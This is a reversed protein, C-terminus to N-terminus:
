AIVASDIGGRRPGFAEFVEVDFWKDGIWDRGGLSAPRQQGGKGSCHSLIYRAVARIGGITFVDDQNGTPRLKIVCNRHIWIYDEHTHYWQHLYTQGPLRGMQGLLPACLSPSVPFYIERNRYCSIARSPGPATFPLDTTDLPLPLPLSFSENQLFRVSNNVNVDTPRGAPALPSAVCLGLCLVCAYFLIMVSSATLLSCVLHPLM